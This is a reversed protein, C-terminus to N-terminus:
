ALFRRVGPPAPALNLVKGLRAWQAASLATSGTDLAEVANFVAGSPPEDLVAAGLTKAVAEPVAPPEQGPSGDIVYDILDAAASADLEVAQRFLM